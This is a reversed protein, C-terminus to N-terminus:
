LFLKDLYVHSTWQTIKRLTISMRGWSFGKTNTKRRKREQYDCVPIIIHYVIHKSYVSSICIYM